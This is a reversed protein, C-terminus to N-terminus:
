LGKLLDAAWGLIGPRRQAAMPTNDFVNGRTAEMKEAYAKAAQRIFHWTSPRPEHWPIDDKSISGFSPWKGFRDRYKNAAWGEQNKFGKLAAYWRLEGYFLQREAPTSLAQEVISDKREALTGANETIDSRLPGFVHKCNPCIKTNKPVLAACDPCDKQQLANKRAKKAKEVDPDLSDYHINWAMGLEDHTGTHDFLLGYDKVYRWHRDAKQRRLLRGVIQVFTKEDHIPRALVICGLDCDIGTTLVNVNCIVELEGDEFQEMLVDRTIRQFKPRGCAECDGTENACLQKCHECQMLAKAKLPTYADMYGTKVGHAQFRSQMTQAHARNICFVFTPRREAKDLWNQIINATLPTMAKVASEDSYEMESSGDVMKRELKLLSKDPRDPCFVRTPCLWSKHTSPDKDTLLYRSTAGVILGDWDKGMGRSWPTASLGIFFTERWEDAHLWKQINKFRLHCEDIIVLDGPKVNKRRNLTQVSAVQLHAYENTKPHDAQIVGIDTLGDAEFEKVTQDILLIRPVTFIVRSGLELAMDAISSALRTKGGGTAMQVVVRRWGKGGHDTKRFAQRLDAICDTQYQRLTRNSM